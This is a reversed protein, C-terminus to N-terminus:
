ATFSGHARFDLMRFADLLNFDSKLALEIKASELDRELFIIEKLANGLEGQEVRDFNIEEVQRDSLEDLLDETYASIGGHYLKLFKTDIIIKNM